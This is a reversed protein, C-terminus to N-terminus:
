LGEGFSVKSVYTLDSTTEANAAMSNVGATQTIKTTDVQVVNANVCVQKYGEVDYGCFDQNDEYTNVTYTVVPNPAKCDKQCDQHALAVSSAGMLLVPFIALKLANRSIMM